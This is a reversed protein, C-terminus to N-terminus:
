RTVVFEVRRNKWWHEKDEWKALPNEGGKGVATLNSEKLGRKVLEAKIADARDQSLPILENINEEETNSVNNAYGQVEIHIDTSLALVQKAITDLTEKNALSQNDTLKNFSAANADFYITNVVIKWQKQPIIEEMLVGTKFASTETVLDQNLRIREKESPVISTRISYNESSFLPEGSITTGDWEIDNLKGTGSWSKVVENKQDMVEVTWSEPKGKLNSTTNKITLIDNVGDGDPTFGVAPIISSSISPAPVEKPKGEAPYIRYGLTIRPYSAWGEYTKKSYVFNYDAGLFVAFRDPEPSVALELSAKALLGASYKDDNVNKLKGINTGIGCGPVIEFWDPFISISESSLVRRLNFFLEHMLLTNSDDKADADMFGYDLGFLWGGFNYGFGLDIGGGSATIKTKENHYSYAPFIGSGFIEFYLNSSDATEGSPWFVGSDPEACVYSCTLALGLLLSLVKKM